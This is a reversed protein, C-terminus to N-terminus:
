PPYDSFTEKPSPLKFSSGYGSCYCINRDQFSIATIATAEVKKEMLKTIFLPIRGDNTAGISQLLCPHRCRSAIDIERWFLNQNHPSVIGEHIQKVAVSCGCYRGEFVEAWGGAGLSIDSIQIEDRPIVWDRFRSELKDELIAVQQRLNASEMETEALQRQANRWRDEMETVQRQLNEKERLQQQQEM